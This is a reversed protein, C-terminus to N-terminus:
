SFRWMFFAFCAGIAVIFYMLCVFVYYKDDSSRIYYSDSFFVMKVLISIRAMYLVLMIKSAILLNKEDHKKGFESFLTYCQFIAPIGLPICISLWLCEKGGLLSLLSFIFSGYALKRRFILKKNLCGLGRCTFEYFAVTAIFTFSYSFVEFCRYSRFSVKLCDSWIYLGCFLSALGMLHWPLWTEKDPRQRLYLLYLVDALILFVTGYWLSIYDLRFWFWNDLM